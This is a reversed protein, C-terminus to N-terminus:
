RGFIRQTQHLHFVLQVLGDDALVRGDLRNGLGDASTTTTQLIRTTRDTTEHKSSWRTNTFRQQSFREGFKHETVFFGEHRDIHRFVHLFVVKRTQDTGRRSVDAVFFATLQGLLNTSTRIAHHQQVFDFFSVRIDEIGQQLHHFLSTQGIRETTMNIETIHNQDHSGINTSM